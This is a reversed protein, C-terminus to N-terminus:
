SLRVRILQEIQDSTAGYMDHVMESVNREKVMNRIQTASQIKHGCVSFNFTPVEIVYAHHKFSQLNHENKAYSQLYSPEGNKKNEFTFRPNNEMDKESVAFIIKADDYQSVIEDAIYPNKVQVVNSSPIGAFEFLTKKEDFTFPSKVDDTKNSTAIYTVDFKNQLWEYIKLHGCHPPQFRGSFIAVTTM